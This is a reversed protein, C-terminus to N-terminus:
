WVAKTLISTGKGKGTQYFIADLSGMMSGGSMSYSSFSNFFIGMVGSNTRSYAANLMHLTCAKGKGYGSGYGAMSGSGMMSGMSGSMGSMSGSM